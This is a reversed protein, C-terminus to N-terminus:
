ESEDAIEENNDHVEFNENNELNDEIEPIEDDDPM